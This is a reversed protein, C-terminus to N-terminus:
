CNGGSGSGCEPFLHTGDFANRIPPWSFGTIFGQDPPFCGQIPLQIERLVPLSQGQKLGPHGQRPRPHSQNRDGQSHHNPAHDKCPDNNCHQNHPHNDTCNGLGQAGSPINGTALLNRKEAASLGQLSVDMEKVEVLM